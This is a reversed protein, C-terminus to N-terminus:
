KWLRSAKEDKALCLERLAELDATQDKEPDDYDLVELLSIEFEDVGYKEVLERFHTNPHSPTLRARLANMGAKTDKFIELFSEGTPKCLISLVGMEPKRNKYDDMLQKRRETKM